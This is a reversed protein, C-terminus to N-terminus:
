RRWVLEGARELLSIGDPALGGTRRDLHSFGTPCVLADDPALDREVFDLAAQALQRADLPAPPEPDLLPEDRSDM